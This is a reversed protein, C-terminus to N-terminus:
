PPHPMPRVRMGPTAHLLDGTLVYEGARVGHSAVVLSGYSVGLMVYRQEIRNGGSVVYVYTGLQSSRVAVVPVLLVDPEDGLHLRVRIWQGPLLTHLPNGITARMTITGSTRDVRNDLFSLTGHYEPQASGEVIVDVPVPARSQAREIRALDHAPPSFTTYIPDLQVLTNLQTGPVTILAGEHVQTFSLRGAFPARISTHGLNLEATAIAARDIAQVASEQQEATAGQQMVDLPIVGTRLALNRLRNAAAYQHAASDRQAQARAENLAAEYSRPDIQYLLEGKRVDAGDAVPHRMLYGTVPAELTITRVADTTGVYEFEIPVTKQVVASVPVPLAASGGGQAAAADADVDSGGKHALHVGVIVMLTLALATLGRKIFHLDQPSPKSM